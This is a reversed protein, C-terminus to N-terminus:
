ANKKGEAERVQQMLQELNLRYMRTMDELTEVQSVLCDGCNIDKEALIRALAPHDLILEAMTRKPDIDAM